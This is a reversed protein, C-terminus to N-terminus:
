NCLEHGHTLQMTYEERSTTRLENSTIRLDTITVCSGYSTIGFENSMLLLEKNIVPQFYSTKRLENSKIHIENNTVRVYEATSYMIGFWILCSHRESVACSWCEVSPPFVVVLSSSIRRLKENIDSAMVNWWVVKWLFGDRQRRRVTSTWDTANIVTRAACRHTEEEVARLILSYQYCVGLLQRNWVCWLCV